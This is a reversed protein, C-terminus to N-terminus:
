FYVGEKLLGRLEEVEGQTLGTIGDLDIDEIVTFGTVSALSTAVNLPLGKDKNYLASFSPVPYEILLYPTREGLYSTTSNYNNSQSMKPQVNATQLASSIAGVPAGSAGGAAIAMSGGVLGSAISGYSQAIVPYHICACGGYQGIVTSNLQSKGSTSIVYAMFSGDIINFRYKISLTGGMWYEPKIDIFGVFPLYLKSTVTFDLFNQFQDGISLSGCDFDVYDTSCTTATIDTDLAGLKIYEAAGHTPEIPIMHMDVIYQVSDRYGFMSAMARLCGVMDMDAINELFDPFLYQGLDDLVATSIDYVNYFSVDQTGLTPPDPIGIQDSTHDFEPKTGKQGYGDDDSAPGFDDDSYQIDADYGLNKLAYASIFGLGGHPPIFDYTNDGTIQFCHYDLGRFDEGNADGYVAIGGIYFSTTDIDIFNNYATETIGFEPIPLLYCQAIHNTGSPVIHKAYVVINKQHATPHEEDPICPVSYIFPNSSHYDIKFGRCHSKIFRVGEAGTGIITTYSETGTFPVVQQDVVNAHTYPHNYVAGIIPIDGWRNQFAM